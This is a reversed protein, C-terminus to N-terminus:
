KLNLEQVAAYIECTTAWGRVVKGTSRDVLMNNHYKQQLTLEHVAQPFDHFTRVYYQWQDWDDYVVGCIRMRLVDSYQVNKYLGLCMASFFCNGDGDVNFQAYESMSTGHIEMGHSTVESNIHVMGTFRNRGSPSVVCLRPTQRFMNRRYRVKKRSGEGRSSM